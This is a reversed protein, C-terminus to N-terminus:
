KHCGKAPVKKAAQSGVSSNCVSTFLLTALAGLSRRQAEFYPTVNLDELGHFLDGVLYVVDEDFNLGKNQVLFGERGSAALLCLPLVSKQIRTIWTADLSAEM